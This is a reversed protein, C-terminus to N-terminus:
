NELKIYINSLTANIHRSVTGGKKVTAGFTTTTNFRNDYNVYKESLLVKEGNNISYYIKKSQRYIKVNTINTYNITYSDSANTSVVLEFKKTEKQRVRFVLGPRISTSGDEDKTNVITFQNDSVNDQNNPDYSVITFGIEFDKDFNEESFLAIHSDIYKGDEGIYEDPVQAGTMQVDKGNFAVAEELSFVTSMKEKWKAYYTTSQTPVTTTEIKTTYSTNTYWGDFVYQDKTPIPLEGIPKGEIVEKLTPTVTGGNANFTIEYNYPERWKAYYTTDRLVKTNEDIKTIYNEDTYWGELIMNDKTPTPLTGIKEDYNKTISDVPTGGKSDFAVIYSNISYIPGITIPGKVALTIAISTQEDSWKQFTHGEKEKAKLNITTGYYYKKGTTANTEVYQSDEITLLFESRKYEYELVTKGDAGITIEQQKPTEFGEYENTQPKVKTDTAGYLEETDKITYNEGDLDMLKHIVTYKTNPNPSYNAKYTKEGITGKNITVRTQLADGNSGTWGSFTYGEKEPNNLTIEDEVTYKTPNNKTEEGGNLDYHIEYQIVKFDAYIEVDDTISDNFNFETGDSKKWGKFEYGLKEPEVPADIKENYKVVKEVIEDEIKISVILKDKFEIKAKEFTFQMNGNTSAKTMIPLFLVTIALISFLKFGTNKKNRIHKSSYKRRIKELRTKRTFVVLALLSITAITVYVGIDDGTKPNSIDIESNTINGEDDELVFKFNVALNSERESMNTIEKIYKEVIEFTMEEKSNIKQGEYKNYEYAIYENQNDDSIGKITYNKDENNKLKIRYVVSDGVKHFVVSSIIKSKQYSFNNVETTESKLSIEAGTIEFSDTSALTVGVKFISAFFIALTVLILIKNFAKKSLKKM